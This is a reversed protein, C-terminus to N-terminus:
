RFGPLAPGRRKLSGIVSAVSSIPGHSSRGTIWSKSPQPTASLIGPGVVARSFQELNGNRGNDTRAGTMFRADNSALFAIQRNSRVDGLWVYRARGISRDARLRAASFYDPAEEVLFYPPLNTRSITRKYARAM